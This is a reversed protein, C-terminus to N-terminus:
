SLRLRGLLLRTCVRDKIDCRRQLARQFRHMAQDASCGEATRAKRRECFAGM